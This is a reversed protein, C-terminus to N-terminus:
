KTRFSLSDSPPELSLSDSPTELSLSDPLNGRAAQGDDRSSSINAASPVVKVVGSATRAFLSNDYMAECSVSPLIFEGPYAASLRVSFTKVSSRPLDFYWRVESDRIDCATYHASIDPGGDFLRSNYIEWGSPVPVSLALNRLDAAASGNRVTVDAIFDAGQSLSKPSIANGDVDKYVVSLSVGSAAAKVPTGAPVAARSALSAYLVGKSTNRLTVSTAGQVVNRTWLSGASKVAEANAGDNGFACEYRFNMAEKDTLGAMRALASAAFATTQTTYSEKAFGDAVLSALEMAAGLNGALLNAELAIADDRLRSGFFMSENRSPQLSAPAAKGSSEKLRAANPSLSHGSLLEQAVAKRGSLSYASALLNRASGHLVASERLRNMPGDQANGSLALAYLDYAALEDYESGDSKYVNVYKKVSNRWAGFVGGNVSFGANSALALFHGAMADAWLNILTSGPWMVFSGDSLQRSYLETLIDSVIGNAEDRREGDFQPLLSLLTIGKSCLQETCSHPYYKMYLWAGNIDISPFSSVELINYEGDASGGPCDFAYEKGPQLVARRVSLVAPNANRVEISLNEEATYNGSKATVKLHATGETASTRFDFTVLKDSSTTSAGSAAGSASAADFRLSRKGSGSLRLPGDASVSVEVDRVSDEMAFVNVPVTVKEGPGLTRPLTSLVMLPSRVPVAKDASGYAGDHAAVLMVRVSGVYMPLTLKHVNEGRKLTFPGLFKVVPEFRNDRVSGDVRVDEDGGVSFMSAFSTGYAGLVNNYIDWTKVGLAARRNMAARPDPTRFGTLDLLGEDVIALTYTMPKGSKERVRIEFEEQPHIVQPIGLQPELHSGPNSVLVPQVGYLRLPQGEATRKHPNLLTVHAYCNPTMEGTVRFHFPTETSESTEVWSSSIVRSDNEFSVLARAGKAAPIYLTGEEGVTYSKRDLSFTLMSASTGDERDARGRWDPWDCLFTTGSSHGSDLDTVYLLFNGWDPYDLRFPIESDNQGSVLQGSAYVKASSGRVYASLAEGGNEWWWRNDLRWIRYELRHGAVRRGAKDVVCVRFAWDKDTELLRDAASPMRVGVYAGFPSCVANQSITSENGGPESVRTVFTADLLGPADSAAPIRAKVTANGRSDLRTNLLEASLSKFESLPNSFIYGDFGSFATRRPTLKLSVKAPLSSAVAGTLWSSSLRFTALSDADLVDSPLTLAVKLRNPKISEVHLAKHFAAGGVKAYAHYTGTPDNESTQVEFVYFGDVSKPCVQRSFFQGKPSYVELVAPHEAPLPNGSSEVLLTLHMTDGPRWVGREGYVFGRIGKEVTEGGVDFRSLSNEQGDIVKLYSVADSTKAVVAFPKGEFSLEARGEADSKASALRRLQYNYATIEVGSLPSTSLIDNVYVWMKGNGASKAVVGINSAMLNVSPFRSSQMYYTPNLPNDREEWEYLNWDYYNDYYYSNPIDWEAEDAATMEGEALKTLSEDESALTVANKGYVSYDQVFSLSIRYVAGPERKMLGSLDVSFNQWQHLDTQPNRDLSLQKRYILRGSRRLGNDGDLSNEQLFHLVNDSYIKIVKLDVARLNVAQFPLRLDSGDPLINGQYSLRVAPKLEDARFDATWDEGLRNGRWDKLAESVTLSIDSPRSKRDYFVRVINGDSTSYSRGDGSLIFLGSLDALPDLPQSLTIQIYPEAGDNKKASLVRFGDTGPITVEASVTKEFGSSHGDFVVTLRGDEKRRNLPSVSFEYVGAEPGTKLSVEAAGSVGESFLMKAVENEPLSESLMLRGEVSALEPSQRLIKVGDIVLAARKPAVRFAFEFTKLKPNEVGFVKDLSFKGRYERGQKLQGDEPVFEIMGAGVWRSEGRLSPSFSFLGEAPVSTDPTSAFQIKVSSGESILGGTYAEIYDAFGADPNETGENENGCSAATVATVLMIM